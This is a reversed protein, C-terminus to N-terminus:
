QKLKNLIAIADTLVRAVVGREAKSLAANDVVIRLWPAVLFESVQKPEIRSPKYGGQASVAAQASSAHSPLEASNRFGAIVSLADQMPSSPSRFVVATEMLRSDSTLSPTKSADTGDRVILSEIASDQLDILIQGIKSLKWGDELLVRISIAELLARYTYFGKGGVREQPKSVCGISQYHRILRINPSAGEINPWLQSHVTTVTEVLSHIDGTWDHYRTLITLDKMVIMM